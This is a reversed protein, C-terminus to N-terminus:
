ANKGARVADIRPNIIQEMGVGRYGGQLTEVPPHECGCLGLAAMLFGCAMARRNILTGLQKM